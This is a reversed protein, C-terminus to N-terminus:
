QGTADSAAADSEVAPSVSLDVTEVATEIEDLHVAEIEVFKLIHDLAKRELIQTALVDGLGEKEVRARIRRVSEDTRAAMSEIELELDEEEVKIGEAEAIRALIFFEKLSRLTMEHANARIEAERARIDSDSFGQQRLEMALRSTTSKEQRSVLDAPLEFPTAAILADLIQRRITQKQLSENQRKLSEHVAERLEELNDFGISKLFEPNIEPLRVQKLDNVAIKVNVSKGRLDPDAVATGLKAEVERAEGPTIGELAAGIGPIHGDQFRLEPQLRFQIEKVENLVSGDPKLFTLDATLYDGIRAAGELKPVIQAYRELFRGLRAEVDQDRIAKIPRKVKLDKYEAAAFEPRVEVDMEFTMPGDDPLTIAEVDLKPQVIPNLQYDEDIQELSAMLLASKVQDAVQKRFRKVVLPRPARGPRFGPVQADRQFNGLSEEFQREIEPRPVTVKLHKKCPGVDQIHVDLELKRKAKAEAEEGQGSPGDSPQDTVSVSTDREGGGNSM